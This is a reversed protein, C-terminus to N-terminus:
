ARFAQVRRTSAPHFLGTLGWFAFTGATLNRFGTLPSRRFHSETQRAPPHYRQFPLSAPSIKPNRVRLERIILGQLRDFGVLPYNFQPLGATRHNHLPGSPTSVGQAQRLCHADYRWWTLVRSPLYRCSPGTEEPLLHFLNDPLSLRRCALGIRELCLNTV